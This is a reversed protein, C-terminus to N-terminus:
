PASSINAGLDNMEEVFGPFSTAISAGDDIAVPKRSVTGLVLFAMAIRHDSGGIVRGGGPPPGACGKIKLGDDLEEVTVGCAALGKAIAALRDSEKFRLESLGRMVTEGRACAAAVSLIPYEDIMAPARAPPVEIGELPASRVAVDAVPEGDLERQGSIDIDAGMEALCEFLGARLPNMDVNEITVEAQAACAAAVALFAASSPDGPIDVSRGALEPQGSLTVARAGDDAEGEGLKAGFHRLLRETHDRTPEPEIVTTQGPTNLGALLIASKVQASPVPLRYAIPLPQAAGIVALPLRVGSRAVVRAGIQELPIAVRAMPRASLSVDGAFFCTMQHSAVLGMLLRASTGSNGMDLVGAPESFGGVGVGWVRWVGDAGREVEAGLRRLAAATRRVDDGEALGSLASEGVACAGIILARHSLSKDGPAQVVGTLTTTPASTLASM